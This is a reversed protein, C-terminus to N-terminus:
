VVHLIRYKVSLRTAYRNTQDSSETDTKISENIM